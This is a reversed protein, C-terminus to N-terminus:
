KDGFIERAKRMREIVKVGFPCRKECAGCEACDSATAALSQYHAKVSAPVEEKLSALDLLKNVMAVDIKSPCPACHGCYACQGSFAHRPAKALVSAFDRDEGSATEYAVAADVQDPNDYGILVSAVAPRTLAYHLCQVPTLAVGFPSQEASLLRGACYGKMVTLAVGRSECLRYFEDREQDIGFLSEDAFPKDTIMKFIDIGSPLMDFAPNISFLIVDIEGTEVARTAAAPDHSSLGIHRIVGRRKLDRAYDMVGGTMIQEFDDVSDVFHIMGIDIYDTHFRTLLDEFGEKTKELDRTKEYQGNRWISCLHGQVLWRDRRGILADGINSRIEPNSMFCDVINIGLDDARDIVAKVEAANKRELWEGGLGIESVDLGTRGLKRYKM